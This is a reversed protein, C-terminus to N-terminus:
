GLIEFLDAGNGDAMRANFAVRFLLDGREDTLGAM